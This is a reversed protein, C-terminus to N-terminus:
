VLPFLAKINAFYTWHDTSAVKRSPEIIPFVVVDDMAKVGYLWSRSVMAEVSEKGVRQFSQGAAQGHVIYRAKTPTCDAAVMYLVPGTFGSVFCLARRKLWAVAVHAVRAIDSLREHPVMRSPRSFTELDELFSSM